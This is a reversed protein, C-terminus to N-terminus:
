GPIFPTSDPAAPNAVAGQINETIAAAINAAVDAASASCAFCMGDTTTVVCLGPHQPHDPHPSIATVHMPSVFANRGPLQFFKM